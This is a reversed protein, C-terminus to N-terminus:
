HRRTESHAEQPDQSYPLRYATSPLLAQADLASFPNGLAVGPYPGSLRKDDASWPELLMLGNSERAGIPLPQVEGVGLKSIAPQPSGGAEWQVVTAEPDQEQLMYILDKVKM